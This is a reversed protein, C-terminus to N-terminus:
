DDTPLLVSDFHHFPSGFPVERDSNGDSGASQLRGAPESRARTYINDREVGVFPNDVWEVHGDTFLM